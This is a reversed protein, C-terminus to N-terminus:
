RLPLLPPPPSSVQVGCVVASFPANSNILLEPRRPTSPFTAVEQSIVRGYLAHQPFTKESAQDLADGTFVPATIIAHDVHDSGSETTASYDLLSSYRQSHVSSM